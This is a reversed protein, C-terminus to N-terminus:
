DSASHNRILRKYVWPPIAGDAFILGCDYCKRDVRRCRRLTLDFWGRGKMLLSIREDPFVQVPSYLGIGKPSVDRVYVAHEVDRHLLVGLDRMQM